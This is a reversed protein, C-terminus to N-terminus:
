ASTGLTFVHFKVILDASTLNPDDLRATGADTVFTEFAATGATLDVSIIRVDELTSASLAGREITIFQNDATPFALAYTGTDTRTCTVGPSGTSAITLAVEYTTTSTFNVKTAALLVGSGTAQALNNPADTWTAM